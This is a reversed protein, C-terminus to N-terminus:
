KSRGIGYLAINMTVANTLLALGSYIATKIDRFVIGSAIVVVSDAFLFIYGEKVGLFRQKLLRVIIDTGGTTAHRRFIIAMGYGTLLGGIVACFIPNDGFSIGSFREAYSIMASSIVTAFITGSFFRFGFVVTGILLLPLNLLLIVAGDDASKLFHTILLAIGSVGGAALHAPELFFAFGVAYLACGVTILFYQKIVNM